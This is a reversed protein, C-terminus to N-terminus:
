PPRERTNAANIFDFAHVIAKNRPRQINSHRFNLTFYSLGRACTNPIPNHKGLNRVAPWAQPRM